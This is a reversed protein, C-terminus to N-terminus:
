GFSVDACVLKIAIFTTIQNLTFITITSITSSNGIQACIFRDIAMQNAPTPSRCVSISMPSCFPRGCPFLFLSFHHTTPRSESSVCVCKLNTSDCRERPEKYVNQTRRACDSESSKHVFSERNSALHLYYWDDSVRKVWNFM